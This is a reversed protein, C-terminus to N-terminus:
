DAADDNGDDEADEGELVDIAREIAEVLDARENAPDLGDELVEVADDIVGELEEVRGPNSVEAVNGKRGKGGTLVARVADAGSELLSFVVKQPTDGFLTRDDRTFTM